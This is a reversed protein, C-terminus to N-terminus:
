ERGLADLAARRREAIGEVQEPYGNQDASGFEPLTWFRAEAADDGAQITGSTAAYDVAYLISIIHHNEPAEAATVNCLVLDEPDVVLGTEEKLEIAAHEAPGNGINIKGGPTLWKGEVPGPGQKVLLFQEGDLVLVRASPTPNHFVWRDCSECSYVTPEDIAELETGCYPCFDPPFNVM